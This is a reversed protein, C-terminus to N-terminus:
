NTKTDDLGGDIADAIADVDIEPNELQDIEEDTLPQDYPDVYEDDNAWVNEAGIIPSPTPRTQLRGMRAMPNGTGIIMDLITNYVAVAQSEEPFAITQGHEGLVLVIHWGNSVTELGGVPSEVETFAEEFRMNTLHDVNILSRFSMGPSGLEIFRANAANPSRNKSM